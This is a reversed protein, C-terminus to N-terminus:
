YYVILLSLWNQTKPTMKGFDNSDTPIAAYDPFEDIFDFENHRNLNSGVSYFSVFSKYTFTGSM